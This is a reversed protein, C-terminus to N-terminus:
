KTKEEILSILQHKLHEILQICDDSSTRFENTKKIIYQSLEETEPYFEHNIEKKNRKIKRKM